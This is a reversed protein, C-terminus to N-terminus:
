LNLYDMLSQSLVSNGVKLAADYAYRAFMYESIAAAPDAEELELYQEKLSYATDELLESNDRLFGTQTDMETWRERFVNNSDEFIKTLADFRVEDDGYWDGNNANCRQLIQGLENALSIVNKPVNDVTVKTGDDLEVEVDNAVGYGGLYYTGQLACDFVTSDIAEGDREKHGLGVDIVKSEDDFYKMKEEDAKATSDVPVGRYCLVTAAESASNTPEGYIDIYKYSTNEVYATDGSDNLAAGDALAEADSAYKNTYQGGKVYRCAKIYQEKEAATLNGDNARTEAIQPDVYELNEKAEWTFPANLTDAGAFVYNEGYRGNMIQAIDKAKAQLSQGLAVRGPGTSDSVSRLISLISTDDATISYLDSSVSDLSSWAVDYKHRLSDNVTLQAETRQYSHRIQFCRTALAPDEGYSNFNRRTLVTNMAKTMTNNSRNLGYRYNKLTGVTTMRPIM